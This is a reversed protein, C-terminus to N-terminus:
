APEIRITTQRKKGKVQAVELEMFRPSDDYILSLLKLSDLLPKLGSIANDADYLRKHEIIVTVRMRRGANMRSGSGPELFARITREWAARLDRYAFPHRYKRRMENGSPPLMPIPGITLPGPATSHDQPV